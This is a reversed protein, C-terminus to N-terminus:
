ANTRELKSVLRTIGDDLDLEQRGANFICSNSVFDMTLKYPKCKLNDFNIVLGYIYIYQFVKEKAQKNRRLQQYALDGAVKEMGALLQGEVDCNMKNKNETVGGHLAATTATTEDILEESASTETVIYGCNEKYMVLDPRSSYYKSAHLNSSKSTNTTVTFGMEEAKRRVETCVIKNKTTEDFEIPLLDRQPLQVPVPPLQTDPVENRIITIISQKNFVDESSKTIFDCISELKAATATTAASTAAASAAATVCAVTTLQLDIRITTRETRPLIKISDECEIATAFDTVVAKSAPISNEFRYLYYFECGKWNAILIFRAGDFQLSPNGEKALELNRKVEDESQSLFPYNINVFYYYKEM